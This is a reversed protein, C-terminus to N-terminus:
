KTETTLPPQTPVHSFQLPISVTHRPADSLFTTFHTSVNLTVLSLLTSRPVSLFSPSWLTASIDQSPASPMQAFVSWVLPHCRPMDEWVCPLRFLPKISGKTQNSCIGKNVQCMHTNKETDIQVKTVKVCKKSTSRSQKNTYIVGSRIRKQTERQSFTVTLISPEKDILGFGLIDVKNLPM